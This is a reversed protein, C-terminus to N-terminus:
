LWTEVIEALDTFKTEGSTRCRQLEVVQAQNTLTSIMNFHLSRLAPSVAFRSRYTQKELIRFATLADLPVQAPHDTDLGKKLIFIHSVPLAERNFNDHFFQGYKPLHPRVPYEKNFSAPNAANDLIDEWLKLMPYSATGTVQNTTKDFTMVCIDDTFIEYGRSAMQTLLTSKGAGSNGAFLVLKNKNIVASAHFPICGRQYLIVAMVTGLLFLRISHEDAGEKPEIIVTKGGAAYYRAVNSIEFIFEQESVTAFLRKVIQPENLNDPVRGITLTVDAQEFNAPVLEPMVIPSSIHLGFGWYKYIM